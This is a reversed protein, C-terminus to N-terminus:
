AKRRKAGAGRAPSSITLRKAVRKRGGIPTWRSRLITHQEPRSCSRWAAGVLSGAAGCWGSGEGKRVQQASQAFHDCNGCVKEVKAEMSRKASSSM